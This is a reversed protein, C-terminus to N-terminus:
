SQAAERLMTSMQRVVVDLEGMILDARATLRAVDFDTAYPGTRAMSPVPDPLSVLREAAAADHQRDRVRRHRGIM